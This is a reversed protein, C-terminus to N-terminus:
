FWGDAEDFDKKDFYESKIALAEDYYEQAKQFKERIDLHWIQQAKDLLWCSKRFAEDTTM